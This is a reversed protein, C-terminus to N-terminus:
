KVIWDMLLESVVPIIASDLKIELGTYISLMNVEELQPLDNRNPSSVISNALFLKRPSLNPCLEIQPGGIGGGIGKGQFCYVILVKRSHQAYM